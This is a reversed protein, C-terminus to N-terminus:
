LHSFNITLVTVVFIMIALSLVKFNSCSGKITGDVNTAGEEIVPQFPYPDEPLQDPESVVGLDPDVHDYRNYIVLAPRFGNICAKKQVIKRM